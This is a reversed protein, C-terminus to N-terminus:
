FMVRLDAADHCMGRMLALAVGSLGDARDTLMPQVLSFVDDEHYFVVVDGGDLDVLAEAELGDVFEDESFIDSTPAPIFQM